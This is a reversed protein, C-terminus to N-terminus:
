NAIGSDGHFYSDTCPEIAMVVAMQAIRDAVTPIGSPRKGGNSKPIEVPKVASPLYSGSSMRNRIKYLKGRLNEDFDKLSINDIGSAGRNAKVRKCAEMALQRSIEFSKADKM